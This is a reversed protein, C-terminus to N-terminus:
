MILQSFKWKLHNQTLKSAGPIQSSESKERTSCKSDAHTRKNNPRNCTVRLVIEIVIKYGRNNTPLLTIKNVMSCFTNTFDSDTFAHFSQLINCVIEGIHM